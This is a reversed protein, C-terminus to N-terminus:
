VKNSLPVRQVLTTATRLRPIGLKKTPLDGSFPEVITRLCPGSKATRNESLFTTVKRVVMPLGLYNIVGNTEM